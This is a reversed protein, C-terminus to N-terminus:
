VKWRGLESCVTGGHEWVVKVPHDKNSTGTYNHVLSYNRLPVMAIKKVVLAQKSFALFGSELV